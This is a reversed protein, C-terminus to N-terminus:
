IKPLSSHSMSGRFTVVLFLKLRNSGLYTLMPGLFGFLLKVKDVFGFLHAVNFCPPLNPPESLGLGLFMAWGTM